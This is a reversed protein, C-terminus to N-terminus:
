CGSIGSERRVHAACQCAAERWAPVAAERLYAPRTRLAAVLGSSVPKATVESVLVVLALALLAVLATGGAFFVRRCVAGCVPPCM